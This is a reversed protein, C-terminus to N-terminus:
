LLTVKLYESMRELKGFTSGSSKDGRKKRTILSSLAEMAAEYSSPLPFGQLSEKVVESSEMKNTVQSSMEKYRVGSINLGCTQSILTSVKCLVACCSLGFIHYRQCFIFPILSAENYYWLSSITLILVTRKVPSLITVTSLRLMWGGYTQIAASFLEWSGLKM